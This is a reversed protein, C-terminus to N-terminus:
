FLHWVTRINKMNSTNRINNVINYLIYKSRTIQISRGFRNTSLLLYFPRFFFDYLRQEFNKNLIVFKNM